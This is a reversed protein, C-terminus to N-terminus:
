LALKLIAGPAHPAVMGVNTGGFAPTPTYTGKEYDDLTNADASPIQVSPFKIGGGTLSPNASFTQVASFTNAANLVPVNAGSTGINSLAATGLGLLTRAQAGTLDEPAGAGATLRGKITATAMDSLGVVLNEPDTDDVSIGSGAAVTAVFGDGLGEILKTAAATYRSGDPQFRIRMPQAAGAAGAPCNEVLTGANEGTISAIVLLM